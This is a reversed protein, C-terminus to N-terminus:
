ISGHGVQDTGIKEMSENMVAEIKNGTQTKKIGINPELKDMQHESFTKSTRVENSHNGEANGKELYDSANRRDSYEHGHGFATVDESVLINWGLSQELHTNMM